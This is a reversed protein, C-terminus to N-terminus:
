TIHPFRLRRRASTSTASGDANHTYVVGAIEETLVGPGEACALPSAQVLLVRALMGAFLRKLPKM